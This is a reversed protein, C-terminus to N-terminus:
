ILRFHSTPVPRLLGVTEALKRECCGAMGDLPRRELVAPFYSKFNYLVKFIIDEM